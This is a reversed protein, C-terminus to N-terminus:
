LLIIKILPTVHNIKNNKKDYESKKTNGDQTDSSVDKTSNMSSDSSKLPPEM